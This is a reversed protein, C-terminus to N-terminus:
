RRPALDQPVDLNPGSGLNGGTANHKSVYRRVGGDGSYGRSNDPSARDGFRRQLHVGGEREGHFAAGPDSGLVDSDSAVAIGESPGRATDSSRHRQAASIPTPLLPAGTRSLTRKRFQRHARRRAIRGSASRKGPRCEIWLHQGIFRKCAIIAGFCFERETKPVLLASLLSVLASMPMRTSAPESPSAPMGM